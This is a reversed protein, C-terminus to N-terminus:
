TNHGFTDYFTIRIHKVASSATIAESTFSYQGNSLTGPLGNATTLLTNDASLSGASVVSLLLALLFTIKKM